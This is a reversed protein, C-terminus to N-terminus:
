VLLLLMAGVELTAAPDATSGFHDPMLNEVLFDSCCYDDILPKGVESDPSEDVDVDVGGGGDDGEGDNHGVFIM